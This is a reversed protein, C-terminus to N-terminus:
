RILRDAEARLVLALDAAPARDAVAVAVRMFAAIGDPVSASGTLWRRVERPNVGLLDALAAPSLGLRALAAGFQDATM